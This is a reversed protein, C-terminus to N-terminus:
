DVNENPPAFEAKGALGVVPACGENVKALPFVAGDAAVEVNPPVPNEKLAAAVAAAVAPVVACVMPLLKPETPPDLGNLKPAAVATVVCAAAVFGLVVAGNAPSLVLLVFLAGCCLPKENEFEVVLVEPPINEDLRSFPWVVDAAAAVGKATAELAVAVGDKDSPVLVALCNVREVEVVAVAEVPLVMVEVPAIVM